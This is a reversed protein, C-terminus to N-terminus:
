RTHYGFDLDYRYAGRGEITKLVNLSHSMEDSWKTQDKKQVTYAGGLDMARLVGVPDRVLLM